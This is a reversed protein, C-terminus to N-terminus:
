ESNQSRMIRTYREQYSPSEVDDNRLVRVLPDLEEKSRKMMHHPSMVRLDPGMEDDNRMVKIHPTMEEDSRLVRASPSTEDDGKAGEDGRMVRVHPSGKDMSRLYRKLFRDPIKSLIVEIGQPQQNHILHKFISNPVRIKPDRSYQMDMRMDRIPNPEEDRMVRVHHAGDGRMVRIHHPSDDRMVRVLHDGDDRMVRVHHAGDDARMVRVHHAGDGRMVRVHHAGDDRMVRIHHAGEDGRIVRMVRVHHAGDGRMVRVHHAGDGRKTRLPNNQLQELDNSYRTLFGREQEEDNRIIPDSHAEEDNKLGRLFYDEDYGNAEAQLLVQSSVHQALLVIRVALVKGLDRCRM